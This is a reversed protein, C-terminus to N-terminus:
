RRARSPSSPRPAATSRAARGDRLPRLGRGLLRRAAQRRLDAGRRGASEAGRARRLRAAGDRAPRRRPPVGRPRGPQRRPANGAADRRPARQRSLPRREGPPALRGGGAARPAFPVGAGRGTGRRSPDPGTCRSRPSGRPVRRSRRRAARAVAAAPACRSRGARRPPRGLARGRRGGLGPARPPDRPARGRGRRPGAARVLGGPDPVRAGRGPQLGRRAPDRALRPPTESRRGFSRAMRGRAARVGPPGGRGRHRNAAGPGRPLRTGPRGSAADAHAHADAGPRPNRRFPTGHGTRTEARLGAAAASGFLAAAARRLRGKPGPATGPPCSGACSLREGSRRRM